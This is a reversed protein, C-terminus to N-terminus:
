TKEKNDWCDVVIGFTGKGIQEKMQDTLFNFNFNTKVFNFFFFFCRSNLLEGEKVIFHGEEDTGNNKNNKNNNNSISKDKSQSFHSSNSKTDRINM